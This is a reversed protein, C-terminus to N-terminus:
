EEEGGVSSDETREGPVIVRTLNEPTVVLPEEARVEPADPDFGQGGDILADTVHSEFSATEGANYPTYAKTFTIRKKAM